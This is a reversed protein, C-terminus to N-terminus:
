SNILNILTLNKFIFVFYFCCCKKNCALFCLGQCETDASEKRQVIKVLNPAQNNLAFFLLDVFLVVPTKDFWVGHMTVYVNWDCLVDAEIALWFKFYIALKEKYNRLVTFFFLCSICVQTMFPLLILVFTKM